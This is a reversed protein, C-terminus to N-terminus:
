GIATYLMEKFKAPERIGSIYMKNGGTSRLALDGFNYHTGLYPSQNFSCGEIQSILLDTIAEYYGRIVRKNTIAVETFVTESYAGFGYFAAVIACLLAGGRMLGGLEPSFFLSGVLVAFGIVGWKISNGGVAVWHVKAEFVVKEDAMLHKNIYKGM